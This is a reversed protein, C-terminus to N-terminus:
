VSAVVHRRELPHHVMVVIWQEHATQAVVRSGEALCLGTAASNVNVTLPQCDNVLTLKLWSCRMDGKGATDPAFTIQRSGRVV